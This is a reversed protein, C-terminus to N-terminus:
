PTTDRAATGAVARVAAGQPGRQPLLTASDVFGPTAAIKPLGTQHHLPPLARVAMSSTTAGPKAQVVTPAVARPQATPLTSVLNRKAATTETASRAPLMASGAPRAAPKARQALASRESPSLAQYAQWRAQREDDPLQRSEKFQLRARAREAPKLRAWEVMRETVRSREEATMNPFRTAVEVWKERRPADITSWDRRLPELAKRQEAGLSSWSPGSGAPAAAWGTAALALGLALLPLRCRNMM